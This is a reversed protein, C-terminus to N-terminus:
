KKGGTVRAFQAQARERDSQERYGPPIPMYPRAAPGVRRSNGETTGTNFLDDAYMGKPSGRDAFAQREQVTASSFPSAAAEKATAETQSVARPTGMIGALDPSYMGGSMESMMQNAPGYIQAIRQMAGLQQNYYEPRRQRYDQRAAEMRRTLDRNAAESDKRSQAGVVSQGIAGM